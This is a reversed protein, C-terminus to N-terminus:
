AQVRLEDVSRRLVDIDNIIRSKQEQTIGQCSCKSLNFAPIITKSLDFVDQRWQLLSTELANIRVEPNTSSNLVNNVGEVEKTLAVFQEEFRRQQETVKDLEQEASYPTVGAMHWNRLRVTMVALLLLLLLVLRNM